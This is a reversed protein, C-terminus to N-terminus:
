IGYKDKINKLASPGDVVRGSEVDEMGAIIAQAELLEPTTNESVEMNLGNLNRKM